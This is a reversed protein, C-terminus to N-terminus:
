GAGTTQRFKQQEDRIRDLEKTVADFSTQAVEVLEKAEPDQMVTDNMELLSIGGSVGCLSNRISHMNQRWYQEREKLDQRNSNEPTKSASSVCGM